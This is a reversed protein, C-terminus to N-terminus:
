ILLSKNEFENKNVSRNVIAIFLIYISITFLLTFLFPNSLLDNNIYFHFSKNFKDPSVIDKM